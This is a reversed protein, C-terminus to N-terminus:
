KVSFANSIIWPVGARLPTRGKLYVEVRYSGPADLALEASPGGTRRVVRGDRIFVTEHAFDFPTRVRLTAGNREARFGRAAAAGDVASFFRGAELASFIEFRAGLNTPALPHDLWVHLHFVSFIARYFLHADAAFLGLTPRRRLLEDWKRIGDEPPRVLRLLAATPRMLFMPALFLARAPDDKFLSDGNLIEIGDYISAAGWSWRTKSYPHAIVTFGGLAAVEAAAAEAEHSFSTAPGPQKFGMAVLHGRNTSLESGALVQVGSYLGQADLSASNPNGHDTLIIFDLGEAAAAEAVHAVDKRGDSFRTHAHYAGEAEFAEGAEQRPAPSVYRKFSVAQWVTWGAYLALVATLFRLVIKKM